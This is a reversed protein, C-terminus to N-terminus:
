GRSGRYRTIFTEGMTQVKQGIAHVQKHTEAGIGIILEARLREFRSLLSKVRGHDKSDPDLLGRLTRGIGTKSVM